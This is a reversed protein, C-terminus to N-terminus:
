RKLSINEFTVIIKRLVDYYLTVYLSISMIWIVCLNFYWTDISANMFHKFPLYFQANFDIFHDPDPDKFIPFIKQVLEGRREIIRNPDDQNKVLVGVSENQYSDAYSDFQKRGGMAATIEAIRKEKRASAAAARNNYYQKLIVFFKRTKGYVVSDYHGPQLLAVELFHQRGIDSLEVEIEHQLLKLRSDVEAPDAEKNRYNLNVFDLKSELTPIYYIRKYDSEAMVKDEDYFQREYPNDKFQSVMSAEFAWRSAMMDGVMPVTESNGILPNLKDFKVVVGSLILQPILLIPILIYITVASNFASSINLGVMNAFCSVTFLVGWHIFLMGKIELVYSAVLVFLLTQIASIIFLIGM